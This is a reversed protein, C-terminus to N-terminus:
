EPLIEYVKHVVIDDRAVEYQDCSSILEVMKEKTRCIKQLHFINWLSSLPFKMQPQTYVKSPVKCTEEQINITTIDFTNWDITSNFNIDFSSVKHNNSYKQDYTQIHHEAKCLVEIYHEIEDMIERDTMPKPVYVPYEIHEVLQHPQGLVREKRAHQDLRTFICAQTCHGHKVDDNKGHLLGIGHFETRYGYKAAGTLCWDEFEKRTWEFKHDDHRFSANHKGYNLNPFNINYEANPTTVIMLRPHYVDLTIQLFSDLTDQYLHEIVESCIIAEYAKLRDDPVGISGRYIDIILPSDRKFKYDMEWPKCSEVAEELVDKCIDIGALRVTEKHNGFSPILYSLVGGEGCGYDLINEYKELPIDLLQYMNAMKSESWGEDRVLSIVKGQNFGNPTLRGTRGAMHLYSATSSPKGLILVHSVNPIDIGRATFETAIWLTSRVEHKHHDYEKIDEAVINYDSLKDKVASVSVTPAIFLIGNNVKELEMLVSISEMLRDDTDDFEVHNDHTISEKDHINRISENSVLLCHHKVTSQNTGQADIFIPHHVWGKQSLFYRLPRNLTASSVMTQKSLLALRDLLIETPKPHNIRKQQQKLTAYRKPLALAQDAEDVILRELGHVPLLSESLINLVAGPTGILTHPITSTDYQSLDSTSLVRVNPHNEVLQNLWYEIQVALEQNPVIYMSHVSDTAHTPLLSALSLTTGFSKGTGTKDRLLLDDKGSLLIPIFEEQIPTPESVNFKSKLQQSIFKSIGLNEFTRKNSLLRKQIYVFNLM